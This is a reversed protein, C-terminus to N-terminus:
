WDQEDDDFTLGKRIMDDVVHLDRDIDKQRPVTPTRKNFLGRTMHMALIPYRLADCAHDNQKVPVQEKVDKDATIDAVDPYHYMAMEDILHPAVDEFIHFKDSAILEYVSDIGARIDNNAPIATLKVKNFEMINAPSSPDCDFREINFVKKLRKAAEVMEGITKQTQYWESVLFVGDDPTVALVMICAPNTYGWDVGAVYITRHDLVRPPIIHGDEDFCSYVLGELKHFEGGYIMNFRRPDMTEKKRQFEKEPFYPNENSRAQIVMADKPLRGKHYPRIYDSFIWNLSYPSTTYIVPAEKVSARAQLNEHFYLSYLGAEDGWVGRVNTIGVVSNADTGTRMWCTGGNNMKYCADGKAYEGCGEMIRLFEPLTAQQMIKYTPATIIFNDKPDSFKHMLRKIFLAGVTTKGWQIGTAVITIPKPSFLATDQKDSHPKWIDSMFGKSASAPSSGVVM